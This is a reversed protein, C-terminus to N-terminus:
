QAAPDQTMTLLHLRPTEASCGAPNRLEQMYSVQKIQFARHLGTSHASLTLLHPLTKCWPKTLSHPGNSRAIVQYEQYEHEAALILKLPPRM